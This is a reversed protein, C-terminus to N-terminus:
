IALPPKTNIERAPVGVSVSNENTDKIVVAGGGVTSNPGVNVSDRVLSAGGIFCSEGINVLGALTANPGIFSNAGVRTHHAVTVRNTLIVNDGIDAEFDISCGPLMLIGDGISCSPDIFCTSHIINAFAIRDKFQRYYSTRAQMQSYGISIFLADIVGKAHDELIKSARGLIRYGLAEGAENFDDYFGVVQHGGDNAAHYAALKGLEGAGLIAIRM